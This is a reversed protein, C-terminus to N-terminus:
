AKKGKIPQSIRFLATELQYVEGHRAEPRSTSYRAVLKKQFDAIEKRVAPLDRPSVVFGVGTVDREDVAQTELAEIAKTLLQRHYERIAESPVGGSALVFDPCPRLKGGVREMMGVRELRELALRAEAQSIGLRAAIWRPEDRFEALDALNLIAFCYWDSVLRFLDLSIQREPPPATEGPVALGSRRAVELQVLELLHRSEAPSLKLKESIRLASRASLARQGRLVESLEGPSMGLQRAFARQSYRPNTRLRRSLEEALFSRGDQAELLTM